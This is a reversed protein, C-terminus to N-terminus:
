GIRPCTVSWENLCTRSSKHQNSRRFYRGSTNRTRTLLDRTTLTKRTLEESRSSSWRWSSYLLQQQLYIQKSEMMGASSKQRPGIRKLRKARVNKSKGCSQLTTLRQGWQFIESFSARLNKSTVRIFNRNRRKVEMNSNSAKYTKM